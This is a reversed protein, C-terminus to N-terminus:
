AGIVPDRKKRRTHTVIRHCNACRIECKAIEDLLSQMSCRMMLSVNESKKGRVHDFDLTRIDTCGCDVCAHTSLYNNVYERNRASYNKDNRRVNAIARDKNKYYWDRQAQLQKSYDKYAM